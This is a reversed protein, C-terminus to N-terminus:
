VHADKIQDSETQNSNNADASHNLKVPHKGPRAPVALVPSLSYFLCEATTCIASQGVSSSEWFWGLDACNLIYFTLKEVVARGWLRGKSQETNKTQRSIFIKFGVRIIKHPHASTNELIHVHTCAHTHM